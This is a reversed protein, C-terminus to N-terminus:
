GVTGSSRFFAPESVTPGCAWNWSVVFWSYNGSALTSPLTFTTTATVYRGILRGDAGMVVVVFLSATSSAGAQWELRTPNNVVAGAIPSTQVAPAIPCTGPLTFVTPPSSQGFGCANQASVVWAYDGKPLPEALILSTGSTIGLLQMPPAGTLVGNALTTFAVAYSDAGAVPQWSFLPQHDFIGGSPTLPVPMPLQCAPPTTAIKAIFADSFGSLTSRLPAKVPFDMSKTTGAVHVIGDPMVAVGRGRDDNSGGIPSSFMIRGDVDFKSVFADPCPETRFPFVTCTGGGFPRIPDAAPFDNSQTAGTVYAHGNDNVTVDLAGWFDLFVQERDNGGLYTSYELSSGSPHLKAVFVDNVGRLFAQQANVTPFNTSSTIGVVHARGSTDVAIDFGSDTSHGDLYTSYAIAGARDLKTVFVSDSFNEPAAQIPNLTPFNQSGTTGTVYTNGSTDVAIGEGSERFTGGLYTFYAFSGGAPPIKAIFAEGSGGFNRLPTAGEFTPSETTGVVYMNGEGDVAVDMVSDARTSGLYTSFVLSQGTPDLTAAFGDSCIGGFESCIAPHFSPHIPNAVPFDPSYTDGVVVINGSSDLALARVRESSSGGFVTSFVLTGAADFKSVFVDTGGLAPLASVTTPFDASATMGAVYVNGSTDVAVAAFEESQSGGWYTASVLPAREPAMQSSVGHESGILVVAILAVSTARM